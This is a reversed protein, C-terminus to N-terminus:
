TLNLNLEVLYHQEDGLIQLSHREPYIIELRQRVNSIGKGSGQLIKRSSYVSNKIIFSVKNSSENLFISIYGSKDEEIRSYKFSNEIFPIFLMPAIQLAAHEVQYSFDINREEPTKMRYFEILNKIYAIENELSVNEKSCDELVYRLMESLKLISDPANESKTYTLSYINNLANFLFHPNIQNKLLQLETQLKEETIKQIRRVKESLMDQISFVTGVLYILAMWLPQYFFSIGRRRSRRYEGFLDLLLDNLFHLAIAAIILLLLSTVIYTVKNDEYLQPFLVLVNLYFIAAYFGVNIVEIILEADFDDLRSALALNVALLTLWFVIHVIRKNRISHSHNKIHQMKSLFILGKHVSRVM